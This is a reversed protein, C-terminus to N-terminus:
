LNYISVAIFVDAFHTSYKLKIRNQCMINITKHKLLLETV